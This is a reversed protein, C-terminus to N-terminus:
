MVIGGIVRISDHEYVIVDDYKDNLSVLRLHDKEVIVKKVYSEGNIIFVGFSGSRLDYDKKVFIYEGDQFAPTMSDGSVRLMLDYPKDPIIDSSINVTEVSEEFVPEGTGASVIGHLEREVRKPTFQRAQIFDHLQVIEGVSPSNLQESLQEKAFDNVKDKRSQELQKYISIIKPQKSYKNKPFFKEIPIQFIDAMNALDDYSPSRFGREYHSLSGNSIGLKDSLEKQSLKFEKRYYKIKDGVYTTLDM